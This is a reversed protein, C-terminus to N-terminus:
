LRKNMLKMTWIQDMIFENYRAALEEEGRKGVYLSRLAKDTELELTISSLDFVGTMAKMM